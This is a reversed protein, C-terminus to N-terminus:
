QNVITKSLTLEANFHGALELHESVSIGSELFIIDFDTQKLKDLIESYNSAIDIIDLGNNKLVSSRKTCCEKM